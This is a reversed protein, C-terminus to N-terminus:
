NKGWTFSYFNFMTEVKSILFFIIIICSSIKSNLFIVKYGLMESSHWLIQGYSFSNQFGMVKWPYPLFFIANLCVCNM